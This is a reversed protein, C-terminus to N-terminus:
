NTTIEDSYGVLFNETKEKELLSFYKIAEETLVLKLDEKFLEYVTANIDISTFAYAPNIVIYNTAYVKTEGIMNHKKLENLCTKLSQTTTLELEELLLKISYPKGNSHKIKNDYSSLEALIKFRGYNVVSLDKPKCKERNIISYEAFKPKFSIKINSESMLRLYEGSTITENDLKKRLVSTDMRRLSNTLKKETEKKIETGLGDLQESIANFKDKYERKITKINVIEGTEVNSIGLTALLKHINSDADMKIIDEYSYRTGTCGGIILNKM